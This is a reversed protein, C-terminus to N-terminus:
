ELLEDKEGPDDDEFIERCDASCVTYQKNNYSFVEWGRPLQIKASNDSDVEAITIDVTDTCCDCELYLM